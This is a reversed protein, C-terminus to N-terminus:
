LYNLDNLDGSCQSCVSLLVFFIRVEVKSRHYDAAGLPKARSNALRESHDKVVRSTESHAKNTADFAKSNAYNVFFFFTFSEAM